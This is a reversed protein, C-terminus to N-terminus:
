HLMTKAADQDNVAMAPVGAYDVHQGRRESVPVVAGRPDGCEGIKLQRALRNRIQLRDFGPPM